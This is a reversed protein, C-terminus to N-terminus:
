HAALVTKQTRCAQRLKDHKIQFYLKIENSDSMSVAM